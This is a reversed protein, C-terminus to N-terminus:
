EIEVLARIIRATKTEVETEENTTIFGAIILQMNEFLDTKTVTEETIDEYKTQNNLIVQHKKAEKRTELTLRSDDINILTGILVLQPKSRINNESFIIKVPTFADKEQIGLVTASDEIEIDKVAINKNNKILSVRDNLPIVQTGKPNSVTITEESVREIQGVFGRKTQGNNEFSKKEQVVKEVRDKLAETTAPNSSPDDDTESQALVGGALMMMTIAFFLLLIKLKNKQM